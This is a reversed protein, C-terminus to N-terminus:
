TGSTARKRREQIRRIVGEDPELERSTRERCGLAEICYPCLEMGNCSSLVAKRGCLECRAWSLTSRM